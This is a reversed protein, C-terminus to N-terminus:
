PVENQRLEQLRDLCGLARLLRQKGEATRLDAPPIQRSIIVNCTAAQFLNQRARDKAEDTVKPNLLAFQAALHWLKAMSQLTELDDQTYSLPDSKAGATTEHLAVAEDSLADAIVNLTQELLKPTQQTQIKTILLEFVAITKSCSAGREGTDRRAFKLFEALVKDVDLDPLDLPSSSALIVDKILLELCDRALADWGSEHAALCAMAFLEAQYNSPVGEKNLAIDTLLKQTEEANGGKAAVQLHLIKDDLSRKGKTAGQDVLQLYSNATELDGMRLSAKAIQRRIENQDDGTEAFELARKRWEISRQGRGSDDLDKVQIQCTALMKRRTVQSLGQEASHRIFQDVLEEVKQLDSFHASVAAIWAVHAREWNKRTKCDVDAGSSPKSSVESGLQAVLHTYLRNSLDFKQAKVVLTIFALWSKVTDDKDESAAYAGASIASLLFTMLGDAGEWKDLKILCELLHISSLHDPSLEYALLLKPYAAELEGGSLMMAKGVITLAKAHNLKEDTGCDGFLEAAASSWHVAAQNGAQSSKKLEQIALNFTLIGFRRPMLRSLKSSSDAAQTKSRAMIDRAQQLLLFTATRDEESECRAVSVELQRFLLDLQIVIAEEELAASVGGQVIRRLEQV